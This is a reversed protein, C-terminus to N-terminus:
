GVFLYFAHFMLPKLVLKIALVLRNRHGTGSASILYASLGWIRILLCSVVSIGNRYMNSSLKIGMMGETPGGPMTDSAFSSWIDHGLHLINIIRKLSHNLEYLLIWFLSNTVQESAHWFTEWGWTRCLCKRPHQVRTNIHYIWWLPEKVINQTYSMFIALTFTQAVTSKIM